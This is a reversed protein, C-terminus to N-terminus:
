EGTKKKLEWRKKHAESMKKKTEETRKLGTLKKRTEESVVRNKNIDSIHKRAEPTM